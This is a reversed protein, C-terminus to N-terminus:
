YKICTNLSEIYYSIKYFKSIKFSVLPQSDFAAAAIHSSLLSHASCARQEICEHMCTLLSSYRTPGGRRKEGAPALSPVASSPQYWYSPLLSAPLMIITTLSPIRARGASLLSNLFTRSPRVARAQFNPARARSDVSSVPHDRWWFRETTEISRVLGISLKSHGQVNPM